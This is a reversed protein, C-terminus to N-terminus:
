GPSLLDKLIENYIELYSVKIEYTYEECLEIKQYLEMVTRPLIWLNILNYIYVFKLPLLCDSSAIGVSILTTEKLIFESRFIVGPEEKAGLMTYTKGAGTAGYAFM